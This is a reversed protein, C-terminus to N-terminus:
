PDTGNAADGAGAASASDASSETAGNTVEAGLSDDSMGPPEMNHEWHSLLEVDEGRFVWLPDIGVVTFRTREIREPEFRLDVAYCRPKDTPVEGLIHYDVLREEPKRFTDTVHVAPSTDPVMGPPQGAKWADFVSRLAGEAQTTSPVFRDTSTAEVPAPAQQECASFGCLLGVWFIIRLRSPVTRM